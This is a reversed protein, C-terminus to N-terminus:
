TRRDLYRGWNFLITAVGSVLLFGDALRNGFPRKLAAAIMVPGLVFVDVLRVLQVDAEAFYFIDDENM